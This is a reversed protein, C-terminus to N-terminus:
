KIAYYKEYIELRATECEQRIEEETLDCDILANVVKSTFQKKTQSTIEKM